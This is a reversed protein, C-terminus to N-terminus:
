IGRPPIVDAPAAAVTQGEIVEPAFMMSNQVEETVHCADVFPAFMLTSAIPPPPPPVFLAPKWPEPAPPSYAASVDIAYEEPAFTVTV